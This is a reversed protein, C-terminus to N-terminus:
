TRVHRICRYTLFSIMLLSIITAVLALGLLNRWFQWMGECFYFPGFALVLACSRHGDQLAVQHSFGAYATRNIADVLAITKGNGARALAAHRFAELVKMGSPTRDIGSSGVLYYPTFFGHPLNGVLKTYRMLTSRLSM